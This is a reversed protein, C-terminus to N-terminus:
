NRTRDYTRTVRSLRGEIEPTMTSPDLRWRWNGTAQAPRNMRADSGLGLVDQLPIIATRAVSMMALRIMDWHIDSDDLDVGGDRGIYALARDREEPKAEERFWGVITNNDHTGTYVVSRRAHAHPKFMGVQQDSGFAFQVLRMGPLELARRLKTVEPTVAGLDEAIFPLRDIGLESKVRDFLDKGPGKMWRGNEATKEEAPVSWYRVFGIFHDLRVVDFRHLAMRFREVWWAYGDRKMRSWRYLPNGWRQGTTSFYDPPVGAVHEFDFLEENAWVDASDEAVFIPIDGILVVGRENAYTKLATWQEDFVWQQWRVFDRDAGKKEEMFRAFTDLWRAERRCFRAFRADEEKHKKKRHRAFALALHAERFRATTEYDVAHKPLKVDPDLPVGLADLDILLPNGAFASLASYPSDGHGAPGVPLMQWCRQGTRALFDVFARAEAGLDGCGHPGPLSTLHLLIGSARM